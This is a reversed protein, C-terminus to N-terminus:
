LNLRGNRQSFCVFLPDHLLKSFSLFLSLSSWQSLSSRPFKFLKLQEFWIIICVLNSYFLLLLSQFPLSTILHCCNSSISYSPKLLRLLHFLLLSILDSPIFKGLGCHELDNIGKNHLLGTVVAEFGECRKWIGRMERGWGPCLTMSTLSSARYLLQRHSQALHTHLTCKTTRHDSVRKSLTETWCLSSWQVHSNTKRRWRYRGELFSRKCFTHSLRYPLHCESRM